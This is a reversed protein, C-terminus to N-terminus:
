FGESAPPPEGPATTLHPHKTAKCYHTTLDPVSACRPRRSKHSAFLIRRNLRRWPSRPVLFPPLFHSSILSTLPNSIADVSFETQHQVLITCSLSTLGWRQASIQYSARDEVLWSSIRTRIGFPQEWASSPLIIWWESTGQCLERSILKLIKSDRTM